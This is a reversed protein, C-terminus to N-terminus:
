KVGYIKGQTRVEVLNEIPISRYDKIAVDFVPILGKESFNYPAVGGKLNKKVGLQCTMRRQEGTTRKIFTVGFFKTKANNILEVAEEKSIM